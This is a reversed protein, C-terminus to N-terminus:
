IKREMEPGLLWRFILLDLISSFSLIDLLPFCTLKPEVLPSCRSKKGVGIDKRTVLTKNAHLGNVTVVLDNTVYPSRIIAKENVFGNSVPLDLNVRNQFPLGVDINKIAVHTVGLGAGFHGVFPELGSGILEFRHAM